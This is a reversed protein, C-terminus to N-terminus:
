HWCRHIGRSLFRVTCRGGLWGTTDRLWCATCIIRPCNVANTCPAPPRPPPPDKHPIDESLLLTAPQRSPSSPVVFMCQSPFIPTCPASSLIYSPVRVKLSSRVYVHFLVFCLHRFYRFMKYVKFVLMFQNIKCLFSGVYSYVYFCVNFSCVILVNNM